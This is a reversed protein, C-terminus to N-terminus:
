PLKEAAMRIGELTMHRWHRFPFRASLEPALIKADGGTLFLHCAEAPKRMKEVLDSIAGVVASYIGLRIAAETFTGPVLPPQEVSEWKVLPLKATYSHLAQAMLGLGPLIAGGRFIGAADVLDVTVASGADVIIAASGTERVSNAAVANFLRDLGIREAHDIGITIPLQRVTDIIAISPGRERLWAILAGQRQPHVGTVVWPASPDLQWQRFQEKWASPDDPPLSISDSVAGQEVRGWKIRTNGVDVVVVPKM